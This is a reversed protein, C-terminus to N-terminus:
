SIKFRRDVNWFTYVLVSIFGLWGLWWVDNQGFQQLPWGFLYAILAYVLVFCFPFLIGGVVYTGFVIMCMASFLLDSAKHISKDSMWVIWAYVLCAFALLSIWPNDLVVSTPTGNFVLSLMHIETVGLSKLLADPMAILLFSMACTLLLYRSWTKMHKLLTGLNTM